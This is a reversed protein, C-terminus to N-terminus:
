FGNKKVVQLLEKHIIPNAALISNGFIYDNGNSFDTVVGGAQQVIYSGAAVDWPSLNLEFFGDFKGCATYALDIAASGMRRLGKTTRMLDKLIGIYENLEKFDYYPFGTAILTEQLSNRNSVQIPKGNLTAGNPTAEFMEDKAPLCINAYTPQNNQYYAISISYMDLGFLYNTTGDLPDIIWYEDSKKNAVTDEETIFTANPTIKRLGEVLMRESEKDVLSVLQNFSKEEVKLESLKSQQSRQFSATNSILQKFEKM